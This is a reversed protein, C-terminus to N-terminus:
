EPLISGLADLMVAMLTFHDADRLYSPDVGNFNIKADLETNVQIPEAISVEIEHGTKCDKFTVIVSM